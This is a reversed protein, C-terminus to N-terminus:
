KKTSNLSKTTGKLLYINRKYLCPKPITKKNKSTDRNIKEINFKELRCLKCTKYSKSKAKILSKKEILTKNKIGKLNWIRSLQKACCKKQM